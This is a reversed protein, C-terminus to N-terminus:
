NSNAPAAAKKKGAPEIKSAVKKEHTIKVRLGAKTEDKGADKAKQQIKAITAAVKELDVPVTGNKTVQETKDNVTIEVNGEDKTLVTLKKGEVDVKTIVGLLEDAIVPAALVLLAVFMSTLSLLLGRRSM